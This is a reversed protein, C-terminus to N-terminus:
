HPMATSYLRGYRCCVTFSIPSGAGNLFMIGSTSNAFASRRSRDVSAALGGARDIGAHEPFHRVKLEAAFSDNRDILVASCVNPRDHLQLNKDVINKRLVDETM